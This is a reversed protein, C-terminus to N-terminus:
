CSRKFKHSIDMFTVHFLCRDADKTIPQNWVAHRFAIDFSSCRFIVAIYACLVLHQEKYCQLKYLAYHNLTQVVHTHHFLVWTWIHLNKVSQWLTPFMLLDLYPSDALTLGKPILPGVVGSFKPFKFQLVLCKSRMELIKLQVYCGGWGEGRSGGLPFPPKWIM